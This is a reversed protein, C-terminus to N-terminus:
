DSLSNMLSKKEAIQASASVIFISLIIAAFSITRILIKM